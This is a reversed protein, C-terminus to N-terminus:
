AEGNCYKTALVRARRGHMAGQRGCLLPLPAPFVDCGQGSGTTSLTQAAEAWPAAPRRLQCKCRLRAGAGGGAASCLRVRVKHPPKAGVLRGAVIHSGLGPLVLLQRGSRGIQGLRGGGIGGVGLRSAPGVVADGCSGELSLAPRAWQGLHHCSAEQAARLRLRRSLTSQSLCSDRRRQGPRCAAGHGAGPGCVSDVRGRAGGPLACAGAQCAACAAAAGGGGSGQPLAADSDGALRQRQNM